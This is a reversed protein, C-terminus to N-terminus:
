TCAKTCSVMPEILFLADFAEPRAFSAHVLAGGGLSHGVGIITRKQSPAPTQSWKLQWPANDEVSPLVHFLFNLTDRSYDQWSHVSPLNGANLDQGVGHLTDEIFFVDNVVPEPTSIPLPVETGYM